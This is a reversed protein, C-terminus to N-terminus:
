LHAILFSRCYILSLMQVDVWLLLKDVFATSYCLWRGGHNIATLQLDNEYSKMIMNMNMIRKRYKVVCVDCDIKTVNRRV